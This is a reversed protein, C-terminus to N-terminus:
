FPLDDDEDEEAALITTLLKQQHKIIDKLEEPFEQGLMWNLYGSNSKALESISNGKHKGFKLLADHGDDSVTYRGSHKFVPHTPKGARKKAAKDRYRDALTPKTGDERVDNVIEWEHTSAADSQSVRRKRKMPKDWALVRPPLGDINEGRLWRRIEDINSM